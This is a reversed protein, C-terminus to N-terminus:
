SVFVEEDLLQFEDPVENRNPLASLPRADNGTADPAFGGAFQSMLGGEPLTRDPDFTATAIEDLRDMESTTAGPALSMYMFLSRDEYAFLLDIQLGNSTFSVGRSGDGVETVEPETVDEASMNDIMGNAATTAFNDFDATTLDQDSTVTVFLLASAINNAVDPDAADLYVGPENPEVWMSVATTSPIDQAAVPGAAAPLLLAFLATTILAGHRKFM